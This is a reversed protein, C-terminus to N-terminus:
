AAKQAFRQKLLQAAQAGQEFAEKHVLINNEINYVQLAKQQAPTSDHQWFYIQQAFQQANGIDALPFCNPYYRELEMFAFTRSFVVKSQLELVLSANGSGGQGTEVYPAIVYDMATIARIFEPDSIGGLFRVRAQELDKEQIEEPYSVYDALDILSSLYANNNKQFLGPELLAAGLNYEQISMPHQGGFIALKYNPPLYRLANVATHHGKNESLYGFIGIYRDAPDFRYQAFVEARIKERNNVHETIQQQTLFTIPFDIVCDLDYYLRLQEKERQTHVIVSVQHGRAQHARLETMITDFAKNGRIINWEQLTKRIRSGNRLATKWLPRASQPNQVRHITFVLNRSARILQTINQCASQMSHGYLGAEFQINIYDYDRMATTLEQLHRQIVPRAKPHANALLKHNVALVDTAFHKSFEEKLVHTYSANGCNTNYSSIIALNKRTM